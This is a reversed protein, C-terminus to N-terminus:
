SLQVTGKPLTLKRNIRVTQAHLINEKILKIHKLTIYYNCLRESAGGGGWVCGVAASPIMRHTFLLLTSGVRAVMTGEGYGQGEDKGQV